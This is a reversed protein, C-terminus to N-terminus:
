RGGAPEIQRHETNGKVANGLAGCPETLPAAVGHERQLGVRGERHAPQQRPERSKLAIVGSKPHVQVGRLGIRLEQLGVYIGRDDHALRRLGTDVVLQHEASLKKGDATRRIEGQMRFQALGRVQQPLFQQLDIGRGIIPLHPEARM